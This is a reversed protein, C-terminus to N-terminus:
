MEGASKQHMKMESFLRRRNGNLSHDSVLIFITKLVFGFANHMGIQSFIV